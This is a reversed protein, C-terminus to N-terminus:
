EVEQFEENLKKCYKYAKLDQELDSLKNDNEDKNDIVKVIEKSDNNVIFYTVETTNGSWHDYQRYISYQHRDLKIGILRARFVEELKNAKIIKKRM